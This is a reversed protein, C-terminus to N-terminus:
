LIHMTSYRTDDCLWCEELGVHVDHHPAGAPIDARLVGGAVEAVVVVQRAAAVGVLGTVLRLEGHPFALPIMGEDNMPYVIHSLDFSLM